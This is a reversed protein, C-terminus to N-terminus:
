KVVGYARYWEIMQMKILNQQIGNAELLEKRTRYDMTRDRRIEKADSRLAKLDGGTDENYMSVLIEDEPHSDLYGMYINMDGTDEVEKLRAKRKDMEKEVESWKRADYNSKSGIMSALALSDTKMDLDKQGAASMGLSFITEGLKAIGDVYSNTFFYLVNPDIYTNFGSMEYITEVISKYVPPINDGGTYVGGVQNQKNNYIQQGLSNENVNFEILPRIFSPAISDILYKSPSEILNGRSVPLPLFSDMLIPVINSLVESLSANSMGLATFQAAVAALAGGGYGWPMNIIDHPGSGIFFRADRGWRAMDDTALRNRELDDEGATMYSMLYMATGLAMAAIATHRGRIAQAKIREIYEKKGKEGGADKLNQPVNEKYAREAAAQVGGNLSSLAPAFSEIVRVAGTGAQRFFMFLAGAQKGYKGVQEFNALNKTAAVAPKIADIEAQARPVGKKMLRGVEEAKMIQYASARSTFEFMAGWTDFVGTIAKTTAAGKGGMNIKTFDKFQGTTTLSSIYSIDGGHQLYEALAATFGTTDADVLARMKPNRAPDAGGDKFASAVRGANLLGVRYVNSGIASLYRGAVAPSYDASLNYANALADRIFNKPAFALNFRTHGQGIRNTLINLKDIIPNSQRYTKRIADRLANDKMEIIAIDGNKMYHFFVNERSALQKINADKNFKYRDEFPVITNVEANILGQGKQNYKNPKVMHFLAASVDKRAARAAALHADAFMQLVPNDPISVRGEQTYTAEQYEKGLYEGVFLDKDEKENVLAKGKYPVYNKYGYFAVLNDVQPSWYNAEKNLTKTKESLKSLDKFIKDMLDKAPKDKSFYKMHVAREEPNMEAVVSYEIADPTHLHTKPKDLTGPDLNNKDAVISDLFKRYERALDNPTRGNNEAITPFNKATLESFIRDRISAPSMKKGDWVYNEIDSRLPVKRLFKVQRVEEEHLVIGYASLDALVEELTKGTKEILNRINEHIGNEIGDLETHVINKYNGASNTVADDINNFSNGDGVELLGLRTIERQLDKVEYRENQWLTVIRKFTQKTFSLNRITDVMSKPAKPVRQLKIFEETTRNKPEEAKKPESMYSIGKPDGVRAGFILQEVYTITQGLVNTESPTFGLMRMVRKAFANIISEKPATAMPPLNGMAAQFEPNSFAQAIFEKLNGIDFKKGLKSKVYVHLKDLQEIALKADGKLKDRHDVMRDAAYHANEHLVVVALPVDRPATPDIVITDTDGDYMGPRNGEVKGIRIEPEHDFAHMLRSLREAFAQTVYEIKASKTPKYGARIAEIAAFGSNTEEIAKVLREDALQEFSKRSRAEKLIEKEDEALDKEVESLEKKVPAKKVAVKKVPAKKQRSKRKDSATTEKELKSVAKVEQEFIADRTKKIAEQEKESLSNIFKDRIAIQDRRDSNLMEENVAARMTALREKETMRKLIDHLMVEKPKNVLLGLKVNEDYKAMNAANEEKIQKNFQRKLSGWASDFLDFATEAAAYRQAEKMNAPEAARTGVKAQVYPMHEKNFGKVNSVPETTVVPETTEKKARKPKIIAPAATGTTPTEQGEEETQIAEATETVSPTGGKLQNLETEFQKREADPLNPNSLITELETIRIPALKGRSELEAKAAVTDESTGTYDSYINVLEQDSMNKFDKLAAPQVTEGTAPQGTPKGADGVRNDVSTEIGTAAAGLESPAGTISSQDPKVVPAITEGVNVGGTLKEEEARLRILKGEINDRYQPALPKGKEDVNAELKAEYEAIKKKVDELKPQDKVVKADLAADQNELETKPGAQNIVAGVNESTVPGFPLPKPASLQDAQAKVAQAGPVINAATQEAVQSSQQAEAEKKATEEAAAMRKQEDAARAQSTSRVAGGAAPVVSMAYAAAASDAYEKVAQADTLSLKAGFREAMSQFIEVPMEKTGTSLVAKGFNLLLNKSGIDLKSFAGLGIKDGFFEAVAHAGAAPLVRELDIDTAEKGLRQAEEVARSTTEGAGHFGAQVGLAVNGATVKAIDKVVRKTQEEVYKKAIEEGEEKAIKKAAAEVGEKVLKKSVLGTMGGVATGLGPVFSGAVAGAGMVVLSELLNAAGSGVQYPLWDTLVTGIGKDLASTFSDSTKSKGRLSHKAAEMTELGSKMTEESGFVKGALVKAAGYTEKLQPGYNVFGRIADSSDESPEEKKVEKEGWKREWPATTEKASAGAWDREWPAAM